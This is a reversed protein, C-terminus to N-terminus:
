LHQGLVSFHKEFHQFDRPCQWDGGWVFGREKFLRVPLSNKTLTGPRSPNYMSGQCEGEPVLTVPNWFPNIDIALGFAHWSLRRTGEIYRYNFGSTNNDAISKIDNWGFVPIPIISEILFHAQELATFIVQVDEAIRENVILQGMHLRADTSWHLIDLVVLQMLIEQPCPFDPNDLTADARSFACDVVIDKQDLSKKQM